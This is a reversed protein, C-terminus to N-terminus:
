CYFECSGRSSRSMDSGMRIDEMKEKVETLSSKVDVLHFHLSFDSDSDLNSLQDEELPATASDFSQPSM